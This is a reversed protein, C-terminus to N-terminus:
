VVHNQSKSSASSLSVIMIFYVCIIENMWSFICDTLGFIFYSLPVMIGCLAIKKELDISQRYKKLFFWFPLGYLCALFILGLVGGKAAENLIDNHAHYFGKIAHSYYNSTILRERESEYGAQSWGIWPKRLFLDSAFRFQELRLGVSSTELGQQMPTYTGLEHYALAVRGQIGVPNLAAVALFGTICGLMIKIRVKNSARSVWVLPLLLVVLWAGRSLSMISAAAYALMSLLLLMRVRTQEVHVALCLMLMAYLAMVDGFHIILFDAGSARTKLYFYQYSAWVLSFPAAVIGAFVIPQVTHLPWAQTFVMLALAVLPIYMRFSNQFVPEAYEHQWLWYTSAILMMSILKKKGTFKWDVRKALFALPFILLSYYLIFRYGSPISPAAFLLFFLILYIYYVVRNIFILKESDVGM